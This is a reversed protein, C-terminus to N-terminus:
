DLTLKKINELGSQYASFDTTFNIFGNAEPFFSLLFAKQTIGKQDQALEYYSSFPFKNIDRVIKKALPDLHIFRSVEAIQEKPVSVSKFRGKFLSGSRKNRANFYKTYSNSVKSLFKSIGRPQFERLLLHFHNPMLCYSIIEVLPSNDAPKEGKARKRFAFRSSPISSKYHNLTDIFRKCDKEDEFIMRREVGSNQAHFVPSNQFKLDLTM